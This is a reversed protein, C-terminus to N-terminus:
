RTWLRWYPRFASLDRRWLVGCHLEGAPQSPGESEFARAATGSHPRSARDIKMSCEETLFSGTSRLRGSGPTERGRRSGAGARRHLASVPLIGAPRCGTVARTEWGTPENERKGAPGRRHPVFCSASAAPSGPVSGEGALGARVAGRKGGVRGGPKVICGSAMPHMSNVLMM